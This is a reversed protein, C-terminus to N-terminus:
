GTSFDIKFIYNPDFIQRKGFPLHEGAESVVISDKKTLQYVEVQDLGPQSIQLLFNNKPVNNKVKLKVWFSSSSIGFNPIDSEISKFNPSAMVDKILLKGTKDELYTVNNKVSVKENIDNLFITQANGITFVFLSYIIFQLAKKLRM